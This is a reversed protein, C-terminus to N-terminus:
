PSAEQRAQVCTHFRVYWNLGSEFTLEDHENHLVGATGIGALNPFNGSDALDQLYAEAAARRGPDNATRGGPM